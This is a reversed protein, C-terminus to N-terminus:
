QQKYTFDEIVMRSSVLGILEAQDNESINRAGLLRGVEVKIQAQQEPFFREQRNRNMIEYVLNFEERGHRDIVQQWIKEETGQDRASGSTAVSEPQEAEQTESAAAANTAPSRRKTVSDTQSSNPEQTTDATSGGNKQEEENFNINTLTADSGNLDPDEDRDEEYDAM